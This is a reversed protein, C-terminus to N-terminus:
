HLTDDGLFGTEVIQGGILVIYGCERGENDRSYEFSYLRCWQLGGGPKRRLWSRRRQVSADLLQFHRRVCLQRCYGLVQEDSQRNSWWLAMGALLAVILMLETM